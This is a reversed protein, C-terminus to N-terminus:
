KSEGILKEKGKQFNILSPIKIIKTEIIIVFHNRRLFAGVDLNFHLFWARNIVSAALFGYGNPCV